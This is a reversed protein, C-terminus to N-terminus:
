NRFVCNYLEFFRAIVELDLSQMLGDIMRDYNKTIHVCLYGVLVLFAMCRGSSQLNIFLNLTQTVDYAYSNMSDEDIQSSILLCTWFIGHRDGTIVLSSCTEEFKTIPSKKGPKTSEKGQIAKDSLPIVFPDPRKENFREDLLPDKFNWHSITITTKWVDDKTNAFQSSPIFYSDITDLADSHWVYILAEM